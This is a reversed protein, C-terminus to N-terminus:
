IKANIYQTPGPGLRTSDLQVPHLSTQGPVESSVGAMNICVRNYFEYELFEMQSVKIMGTRICFYM